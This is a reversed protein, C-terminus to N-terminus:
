SGNLHRGGETREGKLVAIDKKLEEIERKRERSSSRGIFKGVLVAVQIALYLQGFVVLYVSVMRAVDTAPTIDGYGLSTMTIFSFYYFTFTNGEMGQAMAFSGPTYFELISCTMSGISGILLFGAISGFIINVSIEKSVTVSYIIVVTTYLFFLMYILGLYRISYLISLWIGFVSLIGWIIGIRFSRRDKSVALVCFVLLLIFTGSGMIDVNPLDLSTYIVYVSNQVLLFLVIFVFRYEVLWKPLRPSSERAQVRAVQMEGGGASSGAREDIGTV